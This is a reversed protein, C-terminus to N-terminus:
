QQDTNIPIQRASGKMRRPDYIPLPPCKRGAIQAVEEEAGVVQRCRLREYVDTKAKLRSQPVRCHPM